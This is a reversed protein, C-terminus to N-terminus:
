QDRKCKTVRGRSLTGGRPLVISDGPYTDGIEPPQTIEEPPEAPVRNSSNLDPGGKGDYVNTRPEYTEYVPKLVYKDFDAKTAANGLKVIINADFDAMQKLWGELKTEDPTLHRVSARSVVKGSAKLINSSLMSGVVAVPGLYQDIVWSDNPWDIPVGVFIVWQNWGCECLKSINATSGILKTETVMGDLNYM